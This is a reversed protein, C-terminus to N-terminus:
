EKILIRKMENNGNFTPFYMQEVKVPNLTFNGTFRPELEINFEYKGASLEQCFIATKEKFYERHVEPFRWGNPKEAYSCGAPIPIEIMVYDAKEKVEVEVKLTAKEGQQLYSTSKNHQYLTSKISFLDDKREPKTNFFQQYATFFIPTKGSKSITLNQNATYNAKYPFSTIKNGNITCAENQIAELSSEKLIDPLITRLVSATKFTNDWYLSTKHQFFYQRILPLQETKGAERLIEYALLTPYLTKNYWYYNKQEWFVSGFTNKQQYQYISDLSYERGLKQKVRITMFREYLDLQMTDLQALPTEFDFPVESEALVQLTFILNQRSLTETNQIIFSLAKNLAPTSFGAKKAEHLASTIYITMWHNWANGSWWGWSGEKNQNKELRNVLKTINDDELYKKGLQETIKKDMLAALLRSATQENCGYQYNKLRLIERIIDNLMSGEMYVELQGEPLQPAIQITTDKNLVYFYGKTDEMGRRF